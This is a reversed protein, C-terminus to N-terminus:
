RKSASLSMLTELRQRSTQLADAMAVRDCDDRRYMALLADRVLARLGKHQKTPQGERSFARRCTALGLADEIEREYDIVTPAAAREAAQVAAQEAKHAAQAKAVPDTEKTPDHEGVFKRNEKASRKPGVKETLHKDRKVLVAEGAPNEKELKSLGRRETMPRGLGVADVIANVDRHEEDATKTVGAFAESVRREGATLPQSQRRLPDLGVPPLVRGNPKLKGESMLILEVEHRRDDSLNDDDLEGRLEEDLEEETPADDDNDWIPESPADAPGNNPDFVTM